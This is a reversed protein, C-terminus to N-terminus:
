RSDLFRQLQQMAFQYQQNQPELEIARALAAKAAAYDEVLAHAQGLLEFDSAAGRVKSLQQALEVTRKGDHQTQLNIRVLAEYGGAANPSLDIVRQFSERAAVIEGARVEIGGLTFRYNANEPNESVMRRGVEMAADWLQNVSLLDILLSWADRNRPDLVSAKMLAEVAGPFDGATSFVRAAFTYRVATDSLEDRFVQDATRNKAEATRSERQANLLERAREREGLRVLATGLGQQARPLAPYLDLAKSFADRAAEFQRLTLKANGLLVYAETADEHKDLFGQLVRAAEGVQGNKTYASALDHTVEALDPLKAQTRTLLEIATEFDGDLLAVKGLGHLAFPYEADLKIAQEWAERAADTEGILLDFRAKVEWADPQQPMKAVIAQALAKAENRLQASDKPPEPWSPLRFRSQRQSVTESAGGDGPKVTNVNDRRPADQTPADQEARRSDSESSPTETFQSAQGVPSQDAPSDQITESPATAAKVRGRESDGQTSPKKNCGVLVVALVCFGRVTNRCTSNNLQVLVSM